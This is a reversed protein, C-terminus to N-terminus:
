PELVPAERPRTAEGAPRVMLWSVLDFGDATGEAAVLVQGGIDAQEAQAMAALVRGHRRRRQRM